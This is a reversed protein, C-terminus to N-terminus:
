FSTGPVASIKVYDSSIPQKHLSVAEYPLLGWTVIICGGIHIMYCSHDLSFLVSAYFKTMTKHWEFALNLLTIYIGIVEPTHVIVDIYYFIVGWVHSWAWYPQMHLMFWYSAVVWGLSKSNWLTGVTAVTWSICLLTDQLINTHQVLFFCSGGTIALCRWLPTQPLNSSQFFFSVIWSSLM